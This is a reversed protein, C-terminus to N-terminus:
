ASSPMRSLLRIMRHSSNLRTSKRDGYCLGLVPIGMEFLEKKCSAAGKAYCSDPGGTLIIGKPNMARIQALDTKYSYIECYVHCERVRRAVLQNYQGGFDIVVIKEKNM